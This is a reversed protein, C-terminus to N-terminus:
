RWGEQKHKTRVHREFRAQFTNHNKDEEVKRPFVWSRIAYRLADYPDDGGVGDIADVKVVDEPDSQDIQMSACVDLVESTNRFFKLVPEGERTSFVKRLEGVGQKRNISAKTLVLDGNLGADTLQRDITKGDRDDFIDHGAFIFVKGKGTCLDAIQHAQERPEVFRGTLHSVVYIHGDPVIACLVFSFPHNYGYDYGAFYRTGLPLRIPDIVHTSHMLEPFMQGAFINWDGELYAKRLAEPLSKLSEVYTPNASMLAKNDYVFSQVFGFDEPKEDGQFRRDIFLRKVWEHGIGGPNGTFLMSPRITPNTTRNSSRLLSFTQYSHQTVEDISIDEFERGQYNFADKDNQLYSFSTISGNPWYIKKKQEKYWQKVQPYELLFPQIHNDELEVLTKRIIVGRTGPHNLRRYVERARVLYSKGGGKAGGM